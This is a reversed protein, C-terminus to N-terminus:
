FLFQMEIMPGHYFVSGNDKRRGLPNALNFDVQQNAVPVHLLWLANYGMRLRLRELMHIEAFGAIEYMQSWIIHNRSVDFGVRGDGRVLSFDEEVFNVGWAGKGWGGLALWCNVNGQWEAGLQGALIRNHVRASYTAQRLPDPPVGLNLLVLGEDDTFISLTEQMDFYRVGIIGEVGSLAKSFTRLNAEGNALTTRLTTNIADAQSWLGLNGEFGLPPNVFFSTLQGPASRVVTNHTEALYYGTLEFAWSDRLLGVTLRPGWSYNPNVQSLDETVLSGPTPPLGNDLNNFIDIVAIPWHGPRRRSLAQAGVHFFVKCEPDYWDCQFAGPIHAPIDLDMGPGPPAMQPTIPGPVMKQSSPGLPIPEPMHQALVAPTGILGVVLALGMWAKSM